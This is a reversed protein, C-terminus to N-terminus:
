GDSGSNSSSRRYPHRNDIPVVAGDRSRPSSKIQPGTRCAYAAIVSRVCFKGPGQRSRKTLHIVAWYEYEIGTKVLRCEYTNTAERTHPASLLQTACESTKSGWNNPRVKKKTQYQRRNIQKGHSPQRLDKSFVFVLRALPEQIMIRPIPQTYM